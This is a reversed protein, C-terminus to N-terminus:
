QQASLGGTFHEEATKSYNFFILSIRLLNSFQM